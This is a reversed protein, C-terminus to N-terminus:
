RLFLNVQQSVFNDQKEQPKDLQETNIIMGGGIAGGGGGGGAAGLSIGAQAAYASAVSDLWAKADAESGLREELEVTLAVLLTGDTRGPGLGHAKALHAKAASLGFGGPMKGGMMRAVLGTTCKGLSGPYGQNLAAGLESLPMEEGKEPASAFEGQLDGLIENQLTSKGGVLDKISKNLPVEAIPKKLKQAIIARLTDVAQLPADPVAAPAGGGAAAPAAFAMAPAAAAAGGGAALSIGAMSAYDSAVQDVWARAEAENALRKPPEQTVSFLLVGDIRGAGLGYTKSLHGQIASLGFGGPMKSGVVRSVLGTTYKGLKGSYGQQLAAGLEALPMEEGKEPASAFEGQLDGLIENQLTSKGGVLEKITKTLPVEAVPKKLKQAIIIRM